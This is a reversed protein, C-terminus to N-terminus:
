VGVAGSFFFQVGVLFEAEKLSCEIYFVADVTQAVVLYDYGGIGIDVAHVYAQEHEGEEELVEGVEDLLPMYIHQLRRKEAHSVLLRGLTGTAGLFVVSGVVGHVAVGVVLTHSGYLAEAIIRLYGSEFTEALNRGLFEAVEDTLIHTYVAHAQALVVTHGLNEFEVHAFVGHLALVEDDVIEHDFVVGM